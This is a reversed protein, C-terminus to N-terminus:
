GRRRTLEWGILALVGAAILLTWFLDVNNAGPRPSCYAPMEFSQALTGDLLYRCYDQQGQMSALDIALAPAVSTALIILILTLRTM